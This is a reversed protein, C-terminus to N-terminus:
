CCQEVFDDGDADRVGGPLLDRIPKRWHAIEPDYKSAGPARWGFEAELAELEAELPNCARKEFGMGGAGFAGIEDCAAAMSDHLECARQAAQATTFYDTCPPQGDGWSELAIEYMEAEQEFREIEALQEPTYPVHPQFSLYRVYFKGPEAQMVAHTTTGHMSTTTFTSVQM